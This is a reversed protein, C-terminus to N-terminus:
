STKGRGFGDELELRGHKIVLVEWDSGGIIYHEMKGVCEKKSSFIVVSHPMTELLM